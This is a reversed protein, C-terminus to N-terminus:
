SPSVGSREEDTSQLNPMRGAWGRCLENSGVRLCLILLFMGPVYDEDQSDEVLDVTTPQPEHDVRRNQSRTLVGGAGAANSVDEGEVPSEVIKRKKSAPKESGEESNRVGDRAKRALDLVSPRANTFAEVFEQVAWNRRLKTEQDPSRCAPCKGESSLCRRICLSCFTHSCSTIVPNDFFDKCVQCRLSTELPALLSLPTDLWDTSDPLAFSTEM